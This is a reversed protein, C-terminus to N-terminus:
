LNNNKARAPSLIDYVHVTAKGAHEWSYKSNGYSRIHKRSDECNRFLSSAFYRSITTALAEEDNPVCIMGTEGEVIDEKLSGVDTALVPLGFSYSLFLVGSQFIFRYPLILVDSAKFFIEIDCDPIYRIHRIIFNHLKREEIIEEVERWYSECGKVQGAIILRFTEDGRRLIDLSYLLFELGKYPAILGFFLLVKWHNDLGLNGRAGERSLHSRPITNNIGFPIISVKAESIGFEHVLQSKMKQTHVFIHDVIRYLIKLSLKHVFSGGGDRQKEDINHATFVLRKGLAKYFMNLLTRDFLVFKNFWLIHFIKVDTTMSYKILRSYYRLVRIGKQFRSVSSSQDGRLNFVNVLKRNITSATSMEDNVIFDVMVGRSVLADLLGLAYPKDAGGTLLSVKM